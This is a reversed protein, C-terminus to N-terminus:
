QESAQALETSQEATTNEADMEEQGKTEVEAPSEVGEMVQDGNTTAVEEITEDKATAPEVATPAETNAEIATVATAPEADADVMDEDADAAPAGSIKPSAQNSSVGSEVASTAEGNTPPALHDGNSKAASRSPSGSARSSITEDNDDHGAYPNKYDMINRRRKEGNQTLVGHKEAFVEGESESMEGDKEIHREWQRASFGSNDINDDEDQDDMEADAEDDLGIPDPPVDTMQVSPAHALNKLNEIVQNKMKELYETSNLNEM